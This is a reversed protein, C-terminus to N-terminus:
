EYEMEDEDEREAEWDKLKADLMFGDDLVSWTGKGAHADDSAKKSSGKAKGDGAEEEMGTAADAEAANADTPKDGFLVSTTQPKNSGRRLIDMFTAKATSAVKQTTAPREILTEKKAVARIEKAKQQSMRVANFLKVVGRTAVKRLRKEYELDATISPIVHEKSYDIKNESAVIKRAKAELKEEELRREITTRSLIPAAAAARTAAPPKASLIDAIAESLPRSKKAPKKKRSPLDEDDDDSADVDMGEDEEDDDDSDAADSDESEEDYNMRDTIDLAEEAARDDEDDSSLSPGGKKAAAKGGRTPAPANGGRKAPPASAAAGKRMAFTAKAKVKGM